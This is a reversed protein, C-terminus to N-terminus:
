PACVVYIKTNVQASVSNQYETVYLSPLLVSESGVHAKHLMFTHLYPSRLNYANTQEGNM